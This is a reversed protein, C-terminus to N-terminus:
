FEFRLGVNEALAKQYVLHAAAVDEVAMGLSKFITCEAASKRQPGAGLEGLIHSEGILGDEIALLIDGAEKLAAVRSDVYVSSRAVLAGPMERHTPRCAGVSVIHVGDKIWENQLVPTQSATVLVIVDAGGVAEEASDAGM